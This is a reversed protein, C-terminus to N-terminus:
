HSVPDAGLIVSEPTALDVIVPNLTQDSGVNGARDVAHVRVLFRYPTRTPMRWVYRGTNRVHSVIPKWEGNSEEAFSITIPEPGLNKDRANWTITLKGSDQGTGVIPENVKVQPPTLDVEVWLQPSEGATPAKRALGVGSRPIITFGYLGEKEVEAMLPPKANRQEAYKEWKRGDCTRWIEVLAIGSPGANRVQYQLSIKKSNVLRQPADLSVPSFNAYQIYPDTSKKTFLDSGSDEGLATRRGEGDETLSLGRSRSSNPEEDNLFHAQGHAAPRPKDDDAPRQITPPTAPTADEDEGTKSWSSLPREEGADVAKGSRPAAASPVTFGKNPVAQLPSHQMYTALPGFQKGYQGFGASQQSVPAPYPGTQKNLLPSLSTAQQLASPQLAIPAGGYPKPQQPAVQVEQQQAPPGSPQGSAGIPGFSVALGTTLGGAMLIGLAAKRLTM